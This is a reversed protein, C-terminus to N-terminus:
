LVGEEVPVVPYFLAPMAIIALVSHGFSFGPFVRLRTKNMADVTQDDFDCRGLRGSSFYGVPRDDM